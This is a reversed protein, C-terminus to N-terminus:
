RDSRECQRTTSLRSPGVGDALDAPTAHGPLDAAILEVGADGLEQCLPDFYELQMRLPHLLVVPRGGGRRHYRVAAGNVQATSSGDAPQETM